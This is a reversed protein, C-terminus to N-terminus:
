GLMKEMAYNHIAVGFAELERRHLTTFGQREFFGKAVESAETHLRHVSHRRAADELAKYLMDAVGQGAAEPACYFFTVHGIATVDAFGAPSGDAGEAVLRTRGDAMLALLREASPALATWALVQRDTYRRPGLAKVSRVFLLSLAAADTARFPRIGIPGQPCSLSAPGPQLQDMYFVVQM